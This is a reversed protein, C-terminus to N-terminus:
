DVSIQDLESNMELLILFYGCRFNLEGRKLEICACAPMM